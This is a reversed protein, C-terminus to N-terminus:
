NKTVVEAWTGEPYPLQLVKAERLRMCLEYLESPKGEHGTPVGSVSPAAMPIAQDVVMM